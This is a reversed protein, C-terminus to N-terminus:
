DFKNHLWRYPFENGPCDTPWRPPNIEKHAKVVAWKGDTKGVRQRLYRILEDLAELQKATPQEHNFDGVLCIGIAINNLYDSHVHGGNIQKPWRSGVEVQGDGSSTGNGIVFQYALGNQMKRVQRHYYEFSKANGQRTGSNHVVIYRWRGKQVPARDIEKRVGSSLYKWRNFWGFFSPTQLGQERDVGSKEIVVPADSDTDNKASGARPKAAPSPSQPAVSKASEILPTGQPKSAAQGNAGTAAGSSTAAPQPSASTENLPVAKPASGAAPKPVAKPAPKPLPKPVPKPVPKPATKPAPAPATKQETKSNSKSPTGQASAQAQLSSTTQINERAKLFLRRKDEDSLSAGQQATVKLVPLLIVACLGFVFLIRPPVIGSEVLAPKEQL